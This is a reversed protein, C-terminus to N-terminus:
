GGVLSYFAWPIVGWHLITQAIAANAADPTGSEASFGHPVANFNALPEAAGFFLLGIGMGASFLMAVWSVTSFEPQEDDAGLRVGGCRGYGLILMFGLVVVALLSFLWGFS